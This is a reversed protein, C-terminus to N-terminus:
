DNSLWPLDADWQNPLIFGGGVYKNGFYQYVQATEDETLFNSYGVIEFPYFIGSTAEAYDGVALLDMAYVAGGVTLSNTIGYFNHLFLDGHSNMHILIDNYGPTLSGSTGAATNDILIDGPAVTKISLSGVGVGVELIKRTGVYSAIKVAIFVHEFAEGNMVKRLSKNVTDFHCLRQVDNPNLNVFPTPGVRDPGNAVPTLHNGNGSQDDWQTVPDNNVGDNYVFHYTLGNAPLAASSILQQQNNMEAGTADEYDAINSFDAPLAKISTILTLAEELEVSDDTEINWVELVFHKKIVEGNYLAVPLVEGVGQWLKYRFVEEGIRYRIVLCFNVGAPTEPLNRLVFNKSASYNFQTIIESADKWIIGTYSFAPLVVYGNKKQLLTAPIITEYNLSSAM